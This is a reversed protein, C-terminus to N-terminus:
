GLGAEALPRRAWAFRKRYAGDAIPALSVGTGSSHIMWGGGLYLGVHDIATPKTRSGRSGFFLVDAPELRAFGFREARPVEGSMAYTTRGRLTAELSTGVAYPALKYVRWVFGSCDFGGPVEVGLQGQASESTGGWVYPYGILAVSQLLITHEWGTVSPLAFGAALQEVYQKEWGKWGLIKAASYAAEARTAVDSPAPELSEQARPHDTRLGLLRAVVETGFRTPPTLGAARTGTAFQRTSDGLGLGRVLSADLGAITVPASANVPASAPKGTLGAVLDALEGATLPDDPRFSAPDGGMLGHSTVLRIQADAWSKSRAATTAAPAAVLGFCALLVAFRRMGSADDSGAPEKLSLRHEDLDMWLGRLLLARCDQDCEAPEEGVTLRV